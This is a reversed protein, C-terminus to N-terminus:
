NVWEDGGQGGQPGPSVDTRGGEIVRFRNLEREIKTAQQRLKRNRAGPGMGYWWGFVGALVGVPQASALTPAILFFGVTLVASIIMLLRANVPLVFMLQLSENPMFLGFLTILTLGSLTSWGFIVGDALFAYNLALPLATSGIAGAILADRIFTEDVRFLLIPALFYIVLLGFVVGIASGGQVFFRTLLQYMAFQEGFPHWALADINFGARGLLLEAIFLTLLGILLNRTWKPLPPFFFQAGSDM